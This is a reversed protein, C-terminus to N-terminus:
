SWQAMSDYHYIKREQENIELLSFHNNNSNLPCFYVLRIGDGQQDQAESRFTEVKKMWGALPRSVRGMTGNKRFPEFQDFPVSYGHRVFSPKDSM